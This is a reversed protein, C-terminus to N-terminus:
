RMLDPNWGLFTLEKVHEETLRRRRIRMIHGTKSFSRESTASSAPVCLYFRAVASLMPYKYRSDFWYELSNQGSLNEREKDYDDVEKRVKDEIDEPLGGDWPEDGAAEVIVPPLRHYRSGRGTWLGGSSPGERSQSGAEVEEEAEDGSDLVMTVRGHKTARSPMPFRSPVMEKSRKASGVGPRYGVAMAYQRCQDKLEDKVDQLLKTGCTWHHKIEPIQMMLRKTM